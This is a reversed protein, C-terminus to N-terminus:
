NQVVPPMPTVSIANSECPMISLAESGSTLSVKLANWFTNIYENNM